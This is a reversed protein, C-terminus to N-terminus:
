LISRNQENPRTDFRILFTLDNEQRTVEIGTIQRTELLENSIKMRLYRALSYDTMENEEYLIVGKKWSIPIINQSSPTKGDSQIKLDLLETMKKALKETNLESKDRTELFRGKDVKELAKKVSDSKEIKDSKKPKRYANWRNITLIPLRQDLMYLRNEINIGTAVHSPATVFCIESTPYINSLLCATVKAYDRCVGLKKEFLFNMSINPKFINKLGKPIEKWPLKRNSHLIAIMTALITLISSTLMVISIMLFSWTNQFFWLIIQINLWVLLVLSVLFSASFVIWAITFIWFIYGLLPFIPQRETWFVINREQWELINTLTENYSDAKLRNALSKVKNNEIEDSTPLYGRFLRILQFNIRIFAKDIAASMSKKNM